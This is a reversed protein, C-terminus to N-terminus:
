SVECGLEPRQSEIALAGQKLHTPQLFIKFLRALGLALLVGLSLTGIARLWNPLMLWYDALALALVTMLLAQGLILTWRVRRTKDIQRCAQLLEKKAANSPDNGSPTNM